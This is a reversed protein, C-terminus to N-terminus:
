PDRELLIADQTERAVHWGNPPPTPFFGLISQITVRDIAELALQEVSRLEIRASTIQWEDVSTAPLVFVGLDREVGTPDVALLRFARDPVAQGAGKGLFRMELDVAVLSTIPFALKSGPTLEVADWGNGDVIRVTGVAAQRDRAATAAVQHILGWADGRRALLIRDAAYKGAVSALAAPSGDFARAVDARRQAQSRGTFIEPDFALKAYGPPKVAVVWAGTEYWALSSWDEYTLVTERRGSTGLISAMDPVRDRVLQLHAYEPETWSGSLLRATFFMTPVTAVVLAIALVPAVLRPRGLRRALLHEATVALGIAALIAAPQSSLLWLRQPRVADELPWGPDYLIALVFPVVFWGVLVLPAEALRPRPWAIRPASARFTALTTVSGVLAFPLFLGFQRPYEWISFRAPLLTETSELAVGGNRQIPGAIAILWPGVLLIAVAGTLALVPVATSRRGPQGVAVAITVLAFALPIPLLLQVQVVACVGLVAGAGFAWRWSAPGELGRLFAYVALPLLGFVIDRPYLPYAEHGVLFLSNVWLRGASFDYAGGFVTLVTALLAIGARGILYRALLFTSLPLVPLWVLGFLSTAQEVSTGLVTAIVSLAIHFGPPYYAPLGEYPGGPPFEGRALGHALGWHYLLDGGPYAPLFGRFGHVVVAVVVLGFLAWGVRSPGSLRPRVSLRSGGGDRGHRTGATVGTDLNM